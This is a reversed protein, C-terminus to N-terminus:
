VTDNSMKVFKIEGDDDKEDQKKTSYSRSTRNVYVPFSHGIIKPAFPCCGRFGSLQKGSTGLGGRIKGATALSVRILRSPLM